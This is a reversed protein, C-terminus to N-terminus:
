VTESKVSETTIISSLYDLETNLPFGFDCIELNLRILSVMLYKM